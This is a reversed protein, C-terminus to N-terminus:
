IEQHGRSSGRCSARALVLAQLSGSLSCGVSAVTFLMLGGIYVKRYGVVDGLGLPRSVM